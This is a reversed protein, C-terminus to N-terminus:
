AYSHFKKVEIYNGHFQILINHMIEILLVHKGTYDAYITSERLFYIVFFDIIALKPFDMSCQGLGQGPTDM